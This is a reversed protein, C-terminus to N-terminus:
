LFKLTEHNKKFFNIVVSLKKYCLISINYIIVFVSFLMRLVNEICFFNIVTIAQETISEIESFM